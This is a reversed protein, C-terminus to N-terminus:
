YFIIAELTFAVLTGVTIAAICYGVRKIREITRNSM